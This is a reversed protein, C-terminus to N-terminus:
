DGQDLEMLEKVQAAIPTINGVSIESRWPNISSINGVSIEL